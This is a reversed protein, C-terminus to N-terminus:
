DPADDDGLKEGDDHESGPGTTSMESPMKLERRLVRRKEFDKRGHGDIGQQPKGPIQGSPTQCILGYVSHVM